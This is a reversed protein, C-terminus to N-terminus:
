WPAARPCRGASLEYQPAVAPVPLPGVAVRSAGRALARTARRRRVPPRRAAEADGAGQAAGLRQLPEDVPRHAQDPDPRRGRRLGQPRPDRRRAGPGPRRHAQDRLLRRRRRRARVAAAVATNRVRQRRRGPRRCRPRARVRRRRRRRRADPEVPVRLVGGARSHVAGEGVARPRARRRLRVPDGVAAVARRPHRLVLRLTRAARRRPRRCAPVARALHLGRGHGLRDRLLGRDGEILRLREEFMASPRTATARTSSTTSTAPSRRRPTPPRTTCSGQTLFIAEATEDFGSRDLGGRVALTDPGFEGTVVAALATRGRALRPEGPPRRRGAPGRFGRGRQLGESARVRRRRPRPPRGSAPGACSSWPRDREVGAAALEDLFRDNRAGDPYRTWEVRVVDKGLGTVDPLGVYAWEARTRVDVLAAGPDHELLRYAEAPGLDGAYAVTM